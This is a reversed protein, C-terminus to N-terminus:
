KQSVKRKKSPYDPVIHVGSNSYHIRFVTTEATKGNLNNVVIGVVTDNTLITEENDWKGTRKNVKIGGTGKFQNVLELIKEDSITIYSPGYQGIAMLDSKRKEYLTTGERHIAQRPVLKDTPMSPIIEERIHKIIGSGGSKDLVKKEISEAESKSFKSPKIKEAKEIRENLEEDTVIWKKNEGQLTQTMKSTKYFIVCNCNDHRRFLDYPKNAPTYDGVIKSCFECCDGTTTRTIKCDLGASSRFEANEKIFDDAFSKTITEVPSTLRRNATEWEIGEASAASVIKDLRDQPFAPIRPNLSINYARDSIEQIQSAIDNVLAHNTKLTPELIKKAINYYLQGDPLKDPSVTDSIANSLIDGLCKAYKFTDESTAKGKKIRELINELVPHNKYGNEFKKKIEEYLELGIDVDNEM